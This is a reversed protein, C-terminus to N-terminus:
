DWSARTRPTFRSNRHKSPRFTRRAILPPSVAQNDPWIDIILVYAIFATKALCGLLHRQCSRIAICFGIDFDVLESMM